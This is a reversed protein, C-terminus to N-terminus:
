MDDAADSTYLLCACCLAVDCPGRTPAPVGQSHRGVRAGGADEARLVERHRPILRRRLHRTRGM